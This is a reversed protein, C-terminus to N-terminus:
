PIRKNDAVFKDLIKRVVVSMSEYENSLREISNKTEKNIKVSLTEYNNKTRKNAKEEM